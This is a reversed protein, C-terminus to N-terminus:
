KTDEQLKRLIDNLSMIAIVFLLSSLADEQFIGRQIKVEALRKEGATLEVRRKEMTKEIFKIVKDSIKYMKLCDIVWSKPAMDYVKKYDTCEMARKVRKSSINILIYNSGPDESYPGCSILSYYIESIRATVIKWMTSPCMIPRYYKQHNQKPSREPDSHDKRQDDM